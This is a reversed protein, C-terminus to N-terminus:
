FERTSHEPPVLDLIWSGLITLVGNLDSAANITKGLCTLIVNRYGSDIYM